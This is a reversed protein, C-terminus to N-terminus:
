LAIEAETGISACYHGFHSTPQQFVTSHEPESVSSQVTAGFRDLVLYPVSAAHYTQTYTHTKTHTQEEFWSCWIKAHDSPIMCM